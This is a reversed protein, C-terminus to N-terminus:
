TALVRPQAVVPIMPAGTPMCVAQGIMTAMPVGGATVRVAGVVFQGTVCPPTSTTTLACGVIAYQSTLNVAPQGSLLVRPFPTVVTAQGAHSCMVTAGLHLLPAPM